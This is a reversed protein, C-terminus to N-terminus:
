IARIRFPTSVGQQGSELHGTSLHRDILLPLPDLSPPQHEMEGTAQIM